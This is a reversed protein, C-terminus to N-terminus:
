YGTTESRETMVFPERKNAIYERWEATDQMKKQYMTTPLLQREFGDQRERRLAQTIQSSM